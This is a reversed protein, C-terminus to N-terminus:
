TKWLRPVYPPCPGGSLYYYLHLWSFLLLLALFADFSYSVFRTREGAEFTHETMCTLSFTPLGTLLWHVFELFRWHLLSGLSVDHVPKFLSALKQCFIATSIASIEELVLKLSLHAKLIVAFVLFPQYPFPWCNLM